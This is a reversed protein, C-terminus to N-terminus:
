FEPWSCKDLSCKTKIESSEVFCYLRQFDAHAEIGVSGSDWLHGVVLWLTEEELTVEGNNEPVPFLTFKCNRSVNFTLRSFESTQNM